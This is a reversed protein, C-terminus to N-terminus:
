MLNHDGLKKSLETNEMSWEFKTNTTRSINNFSINNLSPSLYFLPNFGQNGWFSKKGNLSTKFHGDTLKFNAFVNGVFDDSWNTRGLRTQRYALPNSMEQNVWPSIGYPNGNPDRIILPSSYDNPNVLSWDTVLLLLQIL